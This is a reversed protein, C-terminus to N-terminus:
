IQPPPPRLADWLVRGASALRSIGRVSRVSPRRRASRTVRAALHRARERAQASSKVGGEGYANEGFFEPSTRETATESEIWRMLERLSDKLDTSPIPDSRRSSRDRDPNGGHPQDRHRGRSRESQGLRARRCQHQLAPLREGRQVKKVITFHTPNSHGFYSTTSPHYDKSKTTHLVGGSPADAVNTGGSPGNFPLRIANLYHPTMSGGTRGSRLPICSYPYCNRYAVQKLDVIWDPM